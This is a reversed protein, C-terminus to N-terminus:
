VALGTFSVWIIYAETEVKTAVVESLDGETFMVVVVVGVVGEVVVVDMLHM